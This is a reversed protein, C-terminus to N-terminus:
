AVPADILTIWLPGAESDFGSRCVVRGGCVRTSYNAGDTVSPVSVRIGPTFACKLNGAIMNALEGIVDRVDDDVAEPAPIGVFRGAFECAQRAACHIFVAGEWEGSLYVAGTLLGEAGPYPTQSPWVDITMMTTFVTGVVTEVDEKHIRTVIDFV